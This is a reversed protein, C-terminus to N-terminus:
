GRCVPKWSAGRDLRTFTGMQSILNGDHDSLGDNVLHDFDVMDRYNGAAFRSILLGLRCGLAAQDAETTAMGGDIVTEDSTPM